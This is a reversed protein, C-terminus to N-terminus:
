IRTGHHMILRARTSQLCSVARQILPLTETRTMTEIYPNVEFVLLELGDLEDFRRNEIIRECMDYAKTAYHEVPKGTLISAHSDECIHMAYFVGTFVHRTRKWIARAFKLAYLKEASTSQTSLFVRLVIASPHGRDVAQQLCRAGAEINGSAGKFGYFLRVALQFFVEADVHPGRARMNLQAADERDYKSSVLSFNSTEVAQKFELRVCQALPFPRASKSTHGCTLCM